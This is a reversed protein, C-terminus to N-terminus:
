ELRPGHRIYRQAGQTLGPAGLSLLVCIGLHLSDQLPGPTVSAGPQDADVGVVWSDGWPAVGRM